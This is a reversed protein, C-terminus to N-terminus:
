TFPTSILPLPVFRQHATKPLLRLSRSQRRRPTLKDVTMPLDQMILRGLLNPYERALEICQHGHSGGVDVLFPKEEPTPPTSPIKQAESNLLTFGETWETGQLASMTKHLANIYKPHQFLWDFSTLKTDFAKQFPTHLNDIVDKYNNEAFLGANSPDSAPLPQIKTM